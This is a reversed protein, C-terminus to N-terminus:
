ITSQTNNNDRISFNFIWIRKLICHNKKKCDKILNYLVLNDFEKILLILNIIQNSKKLYNSHM